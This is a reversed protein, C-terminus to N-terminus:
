KMIDERTLMGEIRNDVVVPLQNINYAALTSLADFLDDGPKLTVTRNRPTMIENIRTKTRSAKDTRRADHLCVVGTLIGGDVVPFARQEGGLLYDDIFEGVSLEQEVTQVPTRMVRSVPVDELAERVLLQRYSIMAANNLFWGIFAIWLGNIFGTGFVPVSLGIMMAFGSFMLIWAFVQGAQSAHKTARRLDGTLGWIVARLVRGGDLPFGPVLNFLGLIINVNGLWVLLTAMPSLGEFVQAIREPDMPISGSILTAISLCTFGLVISTIPGVIAMYLEAKWGHPEAGMQAMGGFIFLVIPPVEIGQARGVLAHSLEHALVSGFFLVAALLSTEWVLSTSRQPHWVPFAGTALALTILAFIILLSWDVAIEVGAIRGLRFGSSTM